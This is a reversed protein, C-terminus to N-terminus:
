KTKAALDCQPTQQKTGRLCTTTLRCREGAQSPASGLKQFTKTDLGVGLNEFSSKREGAWDVAGQGMFVSSMPELALQFHIEM